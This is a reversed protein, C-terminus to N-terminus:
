ARREVSGESPNISRARGRDDYSNFGRAAKLIAQLRKQAAQVGKLAAALHRQNELAMEHVRVLRQAPVGALAAMAEQKRDALAALRDFDGNRIVDRELRLVDVLADIADQVKDRM